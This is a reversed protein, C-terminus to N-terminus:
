TVYLRSTGHPSRSDGRILQPLCPLEAVISLLPSLSAEEVKLSLRVFASALTCTQWDMGLSHAIVSPSRLRPCQWCELESSAVSNKLSLQLLRLLKTRLTKAFLVMPVKLPFSNM